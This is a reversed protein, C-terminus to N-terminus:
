MRLPEGAVTHGRAKEVCQAHLGGESSSQARLIGFRSMLLDYHELITEPLLVEAAIRSNHTFRDVEVSLLESDNPDHGCVEVIGVIAALHPRRQDEISIFLLFTAIVIQSDYAQQLRTDRHHLCLREKLRNGM